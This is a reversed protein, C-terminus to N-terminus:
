QKWAPDERIPRTGPDHLACGFVPTTYPVRTSENVLRLVADAGANPGQHGRASTLGGSFVLRGTPDYLMTQGSVHGRFRAVEQSDDDYLPTVGPIGSAQKWLDSSRIDAEHAAPKGFLIFVALRGQTRAILAELGALSARTCPCDPHSLMVLTFRGNPRAVRSAAPWQQPPDGPAGPTNEYTLLTRAGFVIAAAWVVGAGALLVARCKM